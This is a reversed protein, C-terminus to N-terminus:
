KKRCNDCIFPEEITPFIFHAVAGKHEMFFVKGFVITFCDHCMVRRTESKMKFEIDKM